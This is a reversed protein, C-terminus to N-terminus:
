MHGYACTCVNCQMCMYVFGAVYWVSVIVWKYVTVGLVSAITGECRYYVHLYALYSFIVIFYLAHLTPYSIVAIALNLSTCHRRLDNVQVHM